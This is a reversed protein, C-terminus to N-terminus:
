GARLRAGAHLRLRWGLYLASPLGALFLFALVAVEIPGLGTDGGNEELGVPRDDGPPVSEEMGSEGSAMVSLFPVLVPILVLAAAVAKERGSWARSVTVLVM